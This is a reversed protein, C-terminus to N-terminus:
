FYCNPGDVGIGYVDNGIKFYMVNFIFSPINRDVYTYREVIIGNPNTETTVYKMRLIIKLM